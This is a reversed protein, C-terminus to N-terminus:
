NSGPALASYSLTAQPHSPDMAVESRSLYPAGDLCPIQQAQPCEYKPEDLFRKCEETPRQCPLGPICNNTVDLVKKKILKRCEPGVETFYNNSLTLNVLKPLKCVAEPVPGHLQNRALILYQMNGLCAYSKPITGIFFNGEGDFVRANKLQGVECPLCGSLQNNLFLVELLTKSAQGISKPIQGCFKNNALALFAAPTAGLNWPLEQEFNNNNIFLAVLQLSFVQPPVRGSFSNFRLDLYTLKTAGLVAGPFEGEYKNKSLDLEFLYPLKNISKPIVGSFNNSNAHFISVDPLKEIFNDIGLNRGAFGFGNFQVSYVTQQNYKKLNACKFGKYECANPGTWTQTVGQPDCEIRKKFEQIVRRAIEVRTLVPPKSPPSCPLPPPPPCDVPTPSPTGGGIIVVGGGGGGGGGGGIIIEFAKRNSKSTLNHFHDGHTPNAVVLLYTLCLLPILSLFTLPLYKTVM